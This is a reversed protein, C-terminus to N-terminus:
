ETILNNLIYEVATDKDNFFDAVTQEIKYHPEVGVGEMPHGKPSLRPERTPIRFWIGYKSVFNQPRCGTDGATAEGVLTANGSEKLDIAFSEAASFTYNSTM